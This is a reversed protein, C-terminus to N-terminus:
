QKPSISEKLIESIDKIILKTELDESKIADTFMVRCSPCAVALITAGTEYAKRVRVRNPSDESGALLDIVFNGGGGGCCSSDERNGEMEVLELGPINQLIQRPEEYVKNHRGLFCPDHYTVKVNNESFNLKDTQMLENLFQTYHYVEFDEKAGPYFNKMVHYGHPCLTVIKKVGLDKFKQTNNSVLVNFIGTEGLLYVENGCCIEENGMIGYSLGAQDFLDVLSKAMNQGLDYYSGLCGVYFLYEDGPEYRKVGDAWADRENEPLKFPNGHINVSKFFQIVQPPIRSKDVMDKRAAVIWDVIDPAFNMPCQEACNKCATCSYLIEALNESWEIENRLWAGILWLRGSASYTDFRFRKYPPCNFDEYKSTFKCWGCRFCRHIQEAYETM